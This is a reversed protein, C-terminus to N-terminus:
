DFKLGHKEFLYKKFDDLSKQADPPLMKTPDDTRHAAITQVKLGHPDDTRGFLYDTTIGFLDAIKRITETNPEGRGQEWNSIQDRSSGIRFGFEKQSLDAKKRIGQLRESFISM